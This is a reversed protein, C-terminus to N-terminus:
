CCDSCSTFCWTDDDQGVRCSTDFFVVGAVVAPVFSKRYNFLAEVENERTTTVKKKTAASKRDIERSALTSVVFNLKKIHFLIWSQLPLMIPM